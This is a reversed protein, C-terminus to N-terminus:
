LKYAKKDVWVDVMEHFTAMQLFWTVHNEYTHRSSVNNDSCHLLEVIFCNLKMCARIDEYLM